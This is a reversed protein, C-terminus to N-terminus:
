CLSLHNTSCSGVIFLGLLCYLTTHSDDYVWLCMCEFIFLFMVLIIVPLFMSPIINGLGVLYSSLEFKPLYTSFYYGGFIYVLTITLIQFKLYPFYINVLFLWRTLFYVMRLLVPDTRLHPPFWCQIVLLDGVSQLRVGVVVISSQVTGLVLSFLYILIYWLYISINLNIGIAPFSVKLGVLVALFGM